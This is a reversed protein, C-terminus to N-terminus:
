CVRHVAVRSLCWGGLSLGTLIDESDRLYGRRWLKDQKRPDANKKKMVLEKPGETVALSTLIRGKGDKGVDISVPMLNISGWPEEDKLKSCTLRIGDFISEEDAAEMVYEADPSAKLDSSGRARSKDAWGTHHVVLVTTGNPEIADRLQQLRDFLRGSDLVGQQDFGIFCRTLTDVVM